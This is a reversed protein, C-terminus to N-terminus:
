DAARKKADASNAHQAADANMNKLSNIYAHAHSRGLAFSRNWHGVSSILLLFISFAMEGKVISPNGHKWFFALVLLFIAALSSAALYTLVQRMEMDKLLTERYYRSDDGELYTARWRRLDNYDTIGLMNNKGVIDLFGMMVRISSIRQYVPLIFEYAGHAVVVGLLVFVPLVALAKLAADQDLEVMLLFALSALYFASLISRKMIKSSAAITETLKLLESM